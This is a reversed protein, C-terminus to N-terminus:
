RLCFKLEGRTMQQLKCKSHCQFIANHHCKGIIKILIIIRAHVNIQSHHRCSTATRLCRIKMWETSCLSLHATEHAPLEPKSIIRVCFVKCDGRRTNKGSRLIITLKKECVGPLTILRQRNMSPSLDPYVVNRDCWLLFQYRPNLRLPFTLCGCLVVSDWFAALNIM